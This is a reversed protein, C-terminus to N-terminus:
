LCVLLTLFHYVFKQLRIANRIELEDLVELTEHKKTPPHHLMMALYRIKYVKVKFGNVSLDKGVLSFLLFSFSNSSFSITNNHTSSHVLSTHVLAVNLLDDSSGLLLSEIDKERKKKTKKKTKLVRTAEHKSAKFVIFIKSAKQKSAEDKLIASAEQKIWGKLRLQM